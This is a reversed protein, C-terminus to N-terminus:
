TVHMAVVPLSIFFPLFFSMISVDNCIMEPIDSDSDDVAEPNPRQPVM